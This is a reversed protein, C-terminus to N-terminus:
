NILDETQNLAKFSLFNNNVWNYIEKKQGKM